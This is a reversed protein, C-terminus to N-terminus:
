TSQATVVPPTTDEVPATGGGSSSGGSGSGGGGVVGDTELKTIRTQLAAITSQLAALEPRTPYANENIAPSTGPLSALIERYYSRDVFRAAVVGQGVLSAFQIVQAIPVIAKFRSITEQGVTVERYLERRGASSSAGSYYLGSEEHTPGTYATGDQEFYLVTEIPIFIHFDYTTRQSASELLEIDLDGEPIDFTKAKTTRLENKPQASFTLVDSLQVAIQCTVPLGASDLIKGIIQPM